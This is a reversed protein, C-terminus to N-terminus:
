EGDLDSVLVPDIYASDEAGIGLQGHTNHGCTLVRGEYTLFASHHFGLSMQKIRANMPWRTLALDTSGKWVYTHYPSLGSSTASM